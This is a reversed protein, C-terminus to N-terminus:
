KSYLSYAANVGGEFAQGMAEFEWESGNRYLRGIILADYGDYLETLQYTCITANNSKNYIRISSNEVNGFHFGNDINHISIVIIIQIIENSVKSLNVDIIEDDGDGDGTRDDGSHKVSGDSSLKNNYFVMYSDDPLKGNEDLMFLSADADPSEGDIEYNDWSLGIRVNTLGPAQKSLNLPKKKQLNVM